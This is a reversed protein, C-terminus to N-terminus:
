EVTKYLDPHRKMDDERLVRRLIKGVNSKPLEDLFEVYKPRKYNTLVEKCHEKLEEDTLSPDKKVVFIKVVETSNPDPVGIAGVESVKPHHSVAEEVENPYVNFGSVCVMEKKRDVIKYFHNEQVIGIDGTKLWGGEMTKATEEPREWYGKMVQPGRGWIEGPEGQPVENGDDDRISIETSPLPIGITGLELHIGDIANCTLVPSSETLGYGEVLDCGTVSKWEKAVSTQVAMGGGVTVKLGSFDLSRFDERELMKNFLTNVGTLVSFPHKAMDKIFAKLDRPNTILVNTAGFNMMSLCNVTLAFIHYLPLATIVTEEGEILKPKKWETIQLMNAIINRHTLMAGKSVGTTGGTYQLFAVDEATVEPRQYDAPNASNLCKKFSLHGPLSYSPVMKKINKVVFNVIGGKLGGLMDGIKTIIVHEIETEAKIKELNSAFNELIILISARSDKFQHRMETATYLPNTNVIIAGARIAGFMIVPYQLLNPMQIAIRDGKKVNLDKQLFAAFQKSLTDVETYSLSKGMNIFADKKNFKEFSTELLDIVSSYQSPDIDHAVGEPYHELWPYKM